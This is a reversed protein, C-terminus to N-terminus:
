TGARHDRAIEYQGGGMADRGLRFVADDGEILVEHRRRDADDGGRAIGGEPQSPTWIPLGAEVNGNELEGFPKTM